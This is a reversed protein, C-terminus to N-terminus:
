FAPTIGWSNTIWASNGSGIECYIGKVDERGEHGQEPQFWCSVPETMVTNKRKEAQWQTKFFQKSLIFSEWYVRSSFWHQDWNILLSNIWLLFIQLSFCNYAVERKFYTIRSRCSIVYSNYLGLTKWYSSHVSFTYGIVMWDGGGVRVWLSVYIFCM